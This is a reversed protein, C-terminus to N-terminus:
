WHIWECKDEIKSLDGPKGGSEINYIIRRFNMNFMGCHGLGSYEFVMDSTPNSLRSVMSNYSRVAINFNWSDNAEVCIYIKNKLKSGIENWNRSTYNELDYREWSKKVSQDIDGTVPDILPIPKGDEGRPGFISAATGMWHDSDLYTGSYGLMNEFDIWDKWSVPLGYINYDRFM